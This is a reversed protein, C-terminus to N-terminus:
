QGGPKQGPFRRGGYAAIYVGQPTAAARPAHLVGPPPTSPSQQTIDQATQQLALLHQVMENVFRRNEESLLAYGEPAAAEGAAAADASPSLFYDVSVGFFAAIKRLTDASLNQTRGMKLDTLSARSVGIERCMATINMQCAQCLAEIRAYLDNLASVEGFLIRIM